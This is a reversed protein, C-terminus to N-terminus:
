AEFYAVTIITRRVTMTYIIRVSTGPARYEWMIGGHETKPRLTGILPNAAIASLARDVAIEEAPTFDAAQEVAVPGFIIRAGSRSHKPPM